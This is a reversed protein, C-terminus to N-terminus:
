TDLSVQLNGTPAAELLSGAPRVQARQAERVTMIRDQSAHLITRNHFSVTRAATSCVLLQLFTPM